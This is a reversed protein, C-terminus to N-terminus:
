KVDFLIADKAAVSWKLNAFGALTDLVSDAPSDQFALEVVEKETAAKAEPTFLATFGADKATQRLLDYVPSGQSRVTVKAARLDAKAKKVVEESLPETRPKSDAGRAPPPVGKVAAALSPSLKVHPRAAVTKWETGARQVVLTVALTTPPAKAGDPTTAGTVVVELDEVAVDPAILRVVDDKAELTSDRYPGTPGHEDAFLKEVEGRGSARRGWPGVFDGDEAWFAALARADHANWASVFGPARKKIAAVDDDAGSARTAYTAIVLASVAAAATWIRM